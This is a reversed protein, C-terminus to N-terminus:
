SSAPADKAQSKRRATVTRYLEEYRPHLTGFLRDWALSYLGYNCYFSRHHQNHSTATNIWSLWRHQALGPPLLEYGMHGMVNTLIMYLGFVALALPHMPLLVVIVVLAFAEIVAEAPHFAFAALPSPNTSHHHIKHVREFMWPVHMLRHAWYYYLDHIIVAAPISLWFWVWGRQAIDHYINFWGFVRHAQFVGSFVLGFIVMTLASYSAERWLQVGTFPTPQIRLPALPKRFVMLLALAGGAFVLYRARVSRRRAVAPELAAFELAGDGMAVDGCEEVQVQCSLLPRVARRRGCM